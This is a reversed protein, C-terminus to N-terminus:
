KRVTLYISYLTENISFNISFTRSCKMIQECSSQVTSCPFLNAMTLNQIRFKFINSFNWQDVQKNTPPRPNSVISQGKCYTNNSKNMCFLKSKVVTNCSLLVPVYTGTTVFFAESNYNFAISNIYKEPIWVSRRGQYHVSHM